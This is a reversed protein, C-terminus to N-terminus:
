LPYSFDKGIPKIYDTLDIDLEDYIMEDDYLDIPTSEACKQLKPSWEYGFECRCYPVSLLIHCEGNPGCDKPCSSYKKDTKSSRIFISYDVEQAM